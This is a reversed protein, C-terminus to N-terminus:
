DASPTELSAKLKSFDNLGGHATQTGDGGGYQVDDFTNHTAALDQDSKMLVYRHPSIHKNGSIFSGAPVKTLEFVDLAACQRPHFSSGQPAYMIIVGGECGRGRYITHTGDRDVAAFVAERQPHVMAFAWSGKLEDLFHTGYTSRLQTVVHAPNADSPLDCDRAMEELNELEGVFVAVMGSDECEHVNADRAAALFGAAGFDRKMECGLEELAVLESRRRCRGATGGASSARSGRQKAGVFCVFAGDGGDRADSATKADRRGSAAEDARTTTGDERAEEDDRADARPTAADEDIARM